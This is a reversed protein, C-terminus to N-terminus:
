VIQNKMWKQDPSNQFKLFNSLKSRRSGMFSSARIVVLALLSYRLFISAFLFKSKVFSCFERSYFRLSVEKKQFNTYVFGSSCNFGILNELFRRECYENYINCAIHIIWDNQVIGLWQVCGSATKPLTLFQHINQVKVLWQTCHRLHHLFIM